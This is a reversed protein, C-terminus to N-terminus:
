SGKKPPDQGLIQLCRNKLESVGAVDEWQQLLVAVEKWDNIADALNGAELLTQLRQPTSLAWRVTEQQQKKRMVVPDEATSTASSRVSRDQLSGALARATEAIHSIAPALTSTTPTLPDMNDRMKRITDTATILKSYNDYVLAKREGDLGKIENILGAEVRLVGQLDQGALVERVYVEADFSEADLESEKVEIEEHESANSTADIPAAAKLNYYDRLAARNRRTTPQRAPSATRSISPTPPTSNTPTPSTLSTVSLRPSTITAM